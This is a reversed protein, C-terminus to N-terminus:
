MGRCKNTTSHKKLISATCNKLVSGCRTCQVSREGSDSVVFLGKEGEASGEYTEVAWEIRSKGHKCKKSSGQNVHLNMFRRKGTGGSQCVYDCKTCAIGGDRVIFRGAEGGGKEYEYIQRNLRQEEVTCGDFVGFHLLHPCAFLVSWENHEDKYEKKQDETLTTTTNGVANAWSEDSVDSGDDSDREASAGTAGSGEDAMSVNHEYVIQNMKSLLEGGIPRHPRNYKDNRSGSVNERRGGGGENSRNDIIYDEDNVDSM